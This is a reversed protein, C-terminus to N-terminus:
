WAVCGRLLYHNCQLLEAFSGIGRIPQSVSPLPSPIPGRPNHRNRKIYCVGRLQLVAPQIYVRAHLIRMHCAPLATNVIAPPPPCVGVNMDNRRCRVFAFCQLDATNTISSFYYYYCYSFALRLGSIGVVLQPQALTPGRQEPYRPAVVVFAWWHLSSTTHFTTGTGLLLSLCVAARSRAVVSGFPGLWGDM